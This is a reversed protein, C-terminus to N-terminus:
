QFHSTLFFWDFLISGIHLLVSQNVFQEAAAVAQLKCSSNWYWISEFLNGIHCQLSISSYDLVRNYFMLALEIVPIWNDKTLM